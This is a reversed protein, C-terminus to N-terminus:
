PLSRRRVVDSVADSMRKVLEAAAPKQGGGRRTFARLEFPRGAPIGRVEVLRGDRLLPRVSIEPFYGLYAGEVALQVGMQLLEITAGVRRPVAPFQDLVPLHEMGLFRPVVFPYPALASPDVKRRGSLAHTRGAVVVGRSTGLSQHQIERSAGGGITFGVDIVGQSLLQEIREPVMEYSLPTVEAHDRVLGALTAPLLYASFVEMAGIRLEGRITGAAEDLDLRIRAVEDLVRRARAFLLEGSQTMAVRRTTRVFLEAGLEAELKKITKSMAPPSVGSAKAGRAFSKAVAVNHFYRLDTLEM